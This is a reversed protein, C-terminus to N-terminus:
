SEERYLEPRRHDFVPMADRASGVLGLDLECVLLSGEKGVLRGVVRGLPDAVLSGGAFREGAHCVGAVFAENEIARARLLTEWHDAKCPGDHWASPFLLLDCGAVALARAHEPFRLDYCIGLGLTCFPTRVPLPLADGASMRDSERVGHADYLHCKRYAGRVVGADDVVVATNYPPMGPNEESMCLVVWVHHRAASESVRRVFSGDLPEALDRLEPATLERPCMLNEPFVVLSAGDAAARSVFGEVQAPVDGGQPYGTQALALKFTM